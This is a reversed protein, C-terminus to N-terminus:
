RFSSPQCFLGMLLNGLTRFGVESTHFIGQTYGEPYNYYDAQDREVLVEYDEAPPNPKEEEELSLM